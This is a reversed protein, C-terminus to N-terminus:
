DNSRDLVPAYARRRGGAHIFRTRQAWASGVKTPTLGMRAAQELLGVNEPSVRISEGAPIGGVPRAFTVFSGEM